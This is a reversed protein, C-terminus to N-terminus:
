ASHDTVYATLSLLLSLIVWASRHPVAVPPKHIHVAPETIKSPLYPLRCRHDGGPTLVGWGKEKQKPLDGLCFPTDSLFGRGTDTLLPKINEWLCGQFLMRGRMQKHLYKAKETYGKFRVPSLSHPTPLVSFPHFCLSHTCVCM